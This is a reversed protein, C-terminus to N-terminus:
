QSASSPSTPPAVGEAKLARDIVAWIEKEPLAGDIREGNVYLTPVRHIGLAAGALISSRVATEDQKAICEDLKPRNLTSVTSEDDRAIRDLVAFSKRIHQADGAIQDVNRHLYDVYNWYTVASQAALCDADVAAHMAWPHQPSPFDMFVFRVKNGYREFTSPFLEKYLEACFPCELDDFNVVTVKAHRDGRVPRGAIDIHFVPDSLLDFSDMRVLKEGNASLLFHVVQSKGAYSITIPLEDFGAFQSPGRVGVVVACDSPLNYEDRVLVEIHRNLAANQAQQPASQANCCAPMSFLLLSAVLFGRM